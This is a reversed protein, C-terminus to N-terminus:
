KKNESLLMYLTDCADQWETLEKKSVSLSILMDMTSIADKWEAIETEDEQVQVV